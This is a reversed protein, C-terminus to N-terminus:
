LEIKGSMLDPLLADRLETLYQNQMTNLLAIQNKWIALFHMFIDSLFEKDNCKFVFENKNKTFQIYDEIMLDVDVSKLQEKMEKSQQKAGKYLEVDFGLSKALTENITLKCANKMKLIYNLNDAIEKFDRHADTFDDISVDFYISPSLRYKKNAIEENTKVVSFEKIEQQNEIANLIKQINEDSYVNYKKKYTRNTHSKSGFQGNQKREEVVCNKYSYILNVKGKNKKNKNLVLICTSISTVEFMKDPNLIVTEVFDNDILWRRCELEIKSELVSNPLIFISKDTKSFVDFIFAYNANSAPPIIPFRTDNELPTPPEWKINYPPNSIGVEASIKTANKSISVVSYKDNSTLNYIAKIEGNLVNGNIVKGKANKICLNFLLFPIVKTDLEEIYVNRLSENDKLVQLSLAGSGGCCDYLTECKGALVSVLKCLSKPTYDQKKETRDAQYYQWLAQLWDKSDDIIGNFKDFFTTDHTMVANMLVDSINEIKNVNCLEFIKNKFKLLEMDSKQEFNFVFM